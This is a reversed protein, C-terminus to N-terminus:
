VAFLLRRSIRQAVYFQILSPGLMSVFQIDPTVSPFISIAGRYGRRLLDYGRAKGVDGEWELCGLNM